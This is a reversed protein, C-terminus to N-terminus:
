FVAVIPAAWDAYKIIDHELIGEQKDLEEEVKSKVTTYTLQRAKAFCFHLKLDVQNNSCVWSRGLVHM